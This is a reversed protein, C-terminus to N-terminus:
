RRKEDLYDKVTKHRISLRMCYPRKDEPLFEKCLDYEYDGPAKGHVDIYPVLESVRSIENAFVNNVFDSIEEKNEIEPMGCIERRYNRYDDKIKELDEEKIKIPLGAVLIKRFEAYNGDILCEIPEVRVWIPEKYNPRYVNGNSLHNYFYTTEYFSPIVRIAKIGFAHYVRQKEKTKPNTFYDDTKELLDKQYAKEFLEQYGDNLVTQPAEQPLWGINGEVKTFTKELSDFHFGLRLGLFSFDFNDMFNITGNNKYGGPVSELKWNSTLFYWNKLYSGVIIGKSEIFSCYLEYDDRRRSRINNINVVGLGGTLIAYDSIERTSSEVFRKDHINQEPSTLKLPEFKKVGQMEAELYHEAFSKKLQDKMEELFLKKDFVTNWIEQMHEDIQEKPVEKKILLPSVFYNGVKCFPIPQVHYYHGRKKDYVIKVKTDSIEFEDWGDYQKGTKILTHGEKLYQEVDQDYKSCPYKFFPFCYRNDIGYWRIYCLDFTALWEDPIALKFMFPVSAKKNHTDKPYIVPEKAQFSAFPKAWFETDGHIHDWGDYFSSYDTPVLQLYAKPFETNYVWYYNGMDGSNTVKAFGERLECMEGYPLEPKIDFDFLEELNNM